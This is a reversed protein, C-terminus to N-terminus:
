VLVVTEKLKDLAEHLLKSPLDRRATLLPYDETFQNEADRMGFMGSKIPYHKLLAKVQKIQEDSPEKVNIFDLLPQNVEAYATQKEVNLKMRAEKEREQKEIRAARLEQLKHEQKRLTDLKRLLNEVRSLRASRQTIVDSRRNQNSHILAELKSIELAAKRRKKESLKLFGARLDEIQQQADALKTDIKKLTKELQTITKKDIGITQVLEQAEVRRSGSLSKLTKKFFESHKEPTLSKM